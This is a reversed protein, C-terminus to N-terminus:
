AHDDVAYTLRDIVDVVGDVQRALRVASATSSRLQLEGTLTVVGDDVTVDFKTPDAWLVHMFVDRILEERIESDTRLFVKLLDVRSLIGVLRGDADVVPLRRVKHQAMAHAAEALTADPGITIAPSSMLQGAVDAAAKDRAGREAPSSLLHRRHDGLGYEEKRLLDAESVVGVLRDDEDLVPLASIHRETLLRAIEKFPTALRLVNVDKTMYDGVTPAQM